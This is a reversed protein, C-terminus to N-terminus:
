KLLLVSWCFYICWKCTGQFMTLSVSYWGDEDGGEAKEEDNNYSIGDYVWCSYQLRPLVKKQEQMHWSLSEGGNMLKPKENPWETKQKNLMM